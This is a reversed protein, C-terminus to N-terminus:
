ADGIQAPRIEAPDVPDDDIWEPREGQAHGTLALFGDHTMAYFTQDAPFPLPEGLEDVQAAAWDMVRNHRAGKDDLPYDHSLTSALADTHDALDAWSSGILKHLWGAGELDRVIKAADCASSYRKGSPLRTSMGSRDYEAFRARVGEASQPNVFESLVRRVCDEQDIADAAGGLLGM